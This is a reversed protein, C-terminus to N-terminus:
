CWRKNDSAQGGSGDIASFHRSLVMRRRNEPAPTSGARCSRRSRREGQWGRVVTDKGPELQKYIAFFHAIEDSDYGPVDALDTISTLTATKENM